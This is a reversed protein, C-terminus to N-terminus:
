FFDFLHLKHRMIKQVQESEFLIGPRLRQTEMIQNGWKDYNLQSDFQPPLVVNSIKAKTRLEQASIDTKEIAWHCVECVSAGNDIYYGGDPFLKREIIHHADVAPASCVVCRHKDRKFVAEKWAERSLLKSHSSMLIFYYFHKSWTYCM